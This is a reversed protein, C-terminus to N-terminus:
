FAEQGKKVPKVRYVQSYSDRLLAYPLCHELQDMTVFPSRQVLLDLLIYIDERHRPGEKEKEIEQGLKMLRSSTFVLFERMKERQLNSGYFSFISGAIANVAIPLCHANNEHAQLSPIYASDSKFALEPLATGVYILLLTWTNLDEQSRDCHLTMMRTLLPDVACPVGAAAAIDQTIEPSDSPPNDHFGTIVNLIFPTRKSLVANMAELTLKRFAMVIGIITMRTLLDDTNKLRKVAEQFHEPKDKNQYMTILVDKNAVVLRKVEKTQSSVQEMLKEGMLRIGYPGILESLAMLESIDSYEEAKFPNTSKSLFCKRGPSYWIHGSSTKRLLVNVYWNAYLAAITPKGQADQPQTQQLLVQNLEPTMDINVYAEVSRLSVIFAKLKHLVESPRAISETAENNGVLEVVMSAFLENLHSIIYERPRFTHEWCSLTPYHNVSWSVNSLQILTQDHSSIDERNKRESEVGSMVVQPPNKKDVKQRVKDAHNKLYHGAGKVPILQCSLTIRDHCLKRTYKQIEKAVAELFQHILNIAKEGIGFREEPAHPSCALLFDACVAPISVIYRIQGDDSGLCRGFEAELSKSYFCLFSMDIHEKLVSDIEDVFSSHTSITNMALAFRLHETIKMPSKPTSIYSQMRLWDLRFATFDFEKLAEGEKGGLRMLTDVFSSLLVSEFEPAMPIQQALDRLYSSHYNGMYKRYYTQIIKRHRLVLNKVEILQFLLEPITNDTFDAPNLKHKKPAPSNAHRYIWHVEDKAMALATLVTVLKPGLLGPADSLLLRLENLTSRLYRRKERHVSAASQVAQAAAEQVEGVKKREAKDKSGSLLQEFAAHILITEDRCITVAFGDLLAHKVLDFAGPDALRNACTLFGLLIWRNMRELSLFECPIENSINPQLMLNPAHSISLVQQARM